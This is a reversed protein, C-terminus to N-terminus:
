TRGTKASYCRRSTVSRIEALVADAESEAAALEDGDVRFALTKRANPEEKKKGLQITEKWLQKIEAVSPLNVYPGFKIQYNKPLIIQALRVRFKELM